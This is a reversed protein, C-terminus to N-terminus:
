THSPLVQEPLFRRPVPLIVKFFSVLSHVVFCKPTFDQVDKDGYKSGDCGGKANSGTHSHLSFLPHTLVANEIMKDNLAFRLIETVGVQHM